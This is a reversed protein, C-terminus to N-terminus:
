EFRVSKIIERATELAEKDKCGVMIFADSGVENETQKFWVGTYYTEPEKLALAEDLEGSFRKGERGDIFVKEERYHKLPARAPDGAMGYQVELHIGERYFVWVLADTGKAEEDQRMDPPVSFTFPGAHVARWGTPVEAELSPEYHEFWWLTAAAVGITFTLLAAVISPSLRRM